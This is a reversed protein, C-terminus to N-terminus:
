LTKHTARRRSHRGVKVGGEYLNTAGGLNGLAVIEAIFAAVNTDSPNVVNSDTKFDSEVPAPVVITRRAGAANSFSMRAGDTVSPYTADTPPPATAASIQAKDVELTITRSTVKGNTLPAILANITGSNTVLSAVTTTDPTISSIRMNASDGNVDTIQFNYSYTVNAM